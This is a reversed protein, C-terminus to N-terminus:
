DLFILYLKYRVEYDYFYYDQLEYKLESLIIWATNIENEYELRKLIAKKM